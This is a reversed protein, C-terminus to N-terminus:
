AAGVEKEGEAVSERLPLRVVFTTGEGPQSVAEVRGGCQEVLVHSLFLGLGTGQGRARASRFPEFLHARIEEPIGPGTDRVAVAVQAEDIGGTVTLVGGDPMVQLANVVLNLVVQHLCSGEAEVCLGDALTTEIRVRQARAQPACLALVERVAAAVDIWHREGSSRRAFGLLRETVGRCRFVQRQVIELYERLEEPPGSDPEDLRRLLGEVATAISALPNGVEHAVGSALLGLGALQERHVLEAELLKRHTIDRWMEVVGVINGSPGRLPNAYIEEYREGAPGPMRHIHKELKGSALAKAAPCVSPDGGCVRTDLAARFCLSGCSVAAGADLRRSLAKNITVVRLERDLLLLGDDIGNVLGDLQRRESVLAGIAGELRHAMTDFDRALAGLEDDGAVGARASLDGSGLQRTFQRLTWVRRLVLRELAFGLSLLLAVMGVAGALWVDRRSAAIIRDVPALPRDVILIGNLKQTPQHCRHCAPRNPLPTVTRFIDRGEVGHLTVSRVRREAPMSHCVICEPGTRDFVRGRQAPDSSVRVQGAKDLLMVRRLSPQRGIDDILGEILSHDGDLMAHEIAVRLTESQSATETRLGEILRSRLLALSIISSVILVTAVSAV